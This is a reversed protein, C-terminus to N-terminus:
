CYLLAAFALKAVNTIALMKLLVLMQIKVFYSIIRPPSLVTDKLINFRFNVFYNNKGIELSSLQLIVFVISKDLINIGSLMNNALKIFSLVLYHRGLIPLQRYQLM